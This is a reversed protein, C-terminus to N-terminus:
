TPSYENKSVEQNQLTQSKVTEAKDNLREIMSYLTRADELRVIHGTIDNIRSGDKLFHIVRM